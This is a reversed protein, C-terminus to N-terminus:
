PKKNETTQLKLEKGWGGKSATIEYVSGALKLKLPKGFELVRFTQVTRTQATGEYFACINIATGQEWSVVSPRVDSVGADIRILAVVGTPTEQFPLVLFSTGDVFSQSLESVPGKTGMEVPEAEVECQGPWTKYMATNVPHRLTTGFDWENHGERVHFDFTSLRAGPAVAQPWVKQVEPQTRDACGALSLAAMVAGALIIRKNSNIM